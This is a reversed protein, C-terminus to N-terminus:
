LIEIELYTNIASTQLFTQDLHYINRIEFFNQLAMKLYNDSNFARAVM